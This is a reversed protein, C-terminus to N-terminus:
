FPTNEDDKDYTVNDYDGIRTMSYNHSFIVDGTGGDRQKAVTLIGIGKTSITGSPTQMTDIHYYQPRHLFAVIDADQEIAGSERLDALQPTKDVRDEVKRSLQSLLVFPVGLEKAINKAQKSAQAVEQERSRGKASPMDALQLYDAFIIGCQGRKQLMKAKSRIERMSVTPSDDIYIPLKSLTAHAVELSHWDEPTLKGKSYRNADVNAVALLLRNALSIDSMELSFVCAPVGKTAAALALHLMTATKGMSPRAALVILQSPQWGGTLEDLRTLGTSIGVCEGSEARQQRREAENLAAHTLEAIHKARGGTVVGNSEDAIRNLNSLINGVDESSDLCQVALRQAEIYTKRRIYQEIIVQAHQIIHASSAVKMSLEALYAAINTNIALKLGKCRTVVTYLDIQEGKDYMDCLVEYIARHIDDYFHEPKLTEAIQTISGGELLLAGLVAAELESAQPLHLNNNM